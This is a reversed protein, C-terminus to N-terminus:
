KAPRTMNTVVNALQSRDSGVNTVDNTVILHNETAAATQVGSSALAMPKGRSAEIATASAQGCHSCATLDAAITYNDCRCSNM